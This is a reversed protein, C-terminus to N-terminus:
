GDDRDLSPILDPNKTDNDSNKTDNIDDNNDIVRLSPAKEHNPINTKHMIFFPYIIKQFKDNPLRKGIYQILEVEKKTIKSDIAIISCVFSLAIELEYENLKGLLTDIINRDDQYMKRVKSKLEEVNGIPYDEFIDINHTLVYEVREAEIKAFNGDHSAAITMLYAYIDETRM